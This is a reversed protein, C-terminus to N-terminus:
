ISQQTKGASWEGEGSPPHMTALILTSLLLSLLFVAVVFVHGDRGANDDDVNYGRSLSSSLVVEGGANTMTTERGGERGWVMACLSVCLGRGM